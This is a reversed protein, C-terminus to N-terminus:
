YWFWDLEVIKWKLLTNRIDSFVVSPLNELIASAPLMSIGLDEEEVGEALELSNQGLRNM